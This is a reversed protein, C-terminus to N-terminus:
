GGRNSGYLSLGRLSTLVSIFYLMCSIIQQRLAPSSKSGTMRYERFYLETFVPFGRASTVIIISDLASSEGPLRKLKDFVARLSELKAGSDKWCDLHRL